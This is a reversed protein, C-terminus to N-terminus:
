EKFADKYATQLPGLIIKFQKAGVVAINELSNYADALQGQAKLYRAKDKATHAALVEKWAADIKLVTERAIQKTPAFDTNSPLKEIRVVANHWTDAQAGWDAETLESKSPIEGIVKALAQEYELYTITAQMKQNFTVSTTVTKQCEHWRMRLMEIFQQWNVLINANCLSTKSSMITDSTKKLATLKTLREKDTTTPLALTANVQDRLAIHWGEYRTEYEDWTHKSWLAYAGVLLVVAAIIAIVVRHACISHSVSPWTIRKLKM